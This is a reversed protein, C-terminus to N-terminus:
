IQQKLVKVFKDLKELQENLPNTEPHVRNMYEIAMFLDCNKKIMLFGMCVLPSREVSAFCHIFVAGKKKLEILKNIAGTLEDYSPLKGTKHDPLPLRM